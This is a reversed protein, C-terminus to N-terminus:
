AAAAAFVICVQLGFIKYALPFRGKVFPAEAGFRLARRARSRRGFRGSHGCAGCPNGAGPPEALTDNM